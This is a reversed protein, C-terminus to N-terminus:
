IAQREDPNNSNRLCYDCIKVGAQLQKDTLEKGCSLCQLDEDLDQMHPDYDENPDYDINEDDMMRHEPGRYNKLIDRWSMIIV